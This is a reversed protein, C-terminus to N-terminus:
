NADRDLARLDKKLHKLQAKFDDTVDVATEVDRIVRPTIVAILETRTNTSSTNGFLLGLGPIDGLLPVRNKSLLKNEAIIGGIAITEGDKVTVQTGVSRISISPSQIGSGATPAIPNSVEQEIKMTVWGSASIRPTVTLIIGTSRNQITNSFLGSSGTGGPVVGQSTLIPIESGVQIRALQNDSAIITPSSLVRTRSRSEQANLFLLLDRTNGIRAFTSLNLGAQVGSDTDPTANFSASTPARAQKRQELFASVGMSLAGNLSVEYIKADILVQRPVIDLERITQKIVEYDQPTCQIILANNEEDAVVKIDGQVLGLTAEEEAPKERQGPTQAAAAAMATALPVREEKSRRGYIQVLLPAIKKAEANEVKYVYNRVGGSELPRDLQQIWSEIEAFSSPNPSVALISNIRDIPIFKIASEKSSLSYASFVDELDEVLNQARTHKIPYVQVRRKQFVDSDFIDVLELLRALNAANETIILINGEPHVTVHASESLYPTLIKSMENASVYRMPLVHMVLADETMPAKKGSVDGYMPLPLQRAQTSPVIQYFNGTKVIAAGNIRLVTDLLPLLDERRFEGTINITIFGKVKPDIVYNLKLLDNAIINIVQLVDANALQIMVPASARAAQQPAPAPSGAAPAPTPPAPQPAPSPSPQATPSAPLAAPPSPQAPAPAGPRKPYRQVGFPTNVEYYEEETKKNDEPKDSKAEGKPPEQFPFSELVLLSWGVLLLFVVRFPIESFIKMM